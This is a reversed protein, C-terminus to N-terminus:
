YVITIFGSVNKEKGSRDEYSLKYPYAGAPLLQGSFQGNWGEISMDDLSSSEFVVNGFRNVVQLRFNDSKIDPGFFKVLRNDPNSANPSMTTSLYGPVIPVNPTEGMAFFSDNLPRESIIFTTGNHIEVGDSHVVEFEDEIEDATVFVVRFTETDDFRDPAGVPSGDFSGKIRKLRWYVSRDVDVNSSSTTIKQLREYSAVQIVTNVGRVDTLVVPNYSGDRGVPFYKFGTGEITLAGDIYSSPSGGEISAASRVLLTDRMGVHFIGSGLQISNTVILKGGLSKTGGGYIQLNNVPQDNNNISQNNGSLVISGLGQYIDDNDWNGTVEIIGNNQIFGDNRIDDVYVTVGAPIFISSNNRISQSWAISSIFILIIVIGTKMM